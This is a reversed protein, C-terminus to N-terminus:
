KGDYGAEKAAEICQTLTEFDRDSELALEGAQTFARWKWRIARDLPSEVPDFQWRLPLRIRENPAV